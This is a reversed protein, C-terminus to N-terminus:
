PMGHEHWNSRILDEALLPLGRHEDLTVFYLWEGYVKEEEIEACARFMYYTGPTLRDLRYSYLFDWDWTDPRAQQTPTFNQDDRGVVSWEFGVEMSSVAFGKVAVEGHLVASGGGVNTAPLTKIFARIGRVVTAYPDYGATSSHVRDTINGSDCLGIDMTPTWPTAFRGVASSDKAMTVPKRLPFWYSGPELAVPNEFVFRALWINMQSSGAYGVVPCDQM